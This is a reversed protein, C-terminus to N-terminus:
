SYVVQPLAQASDINFTYTKIESFLLEAVIVASDGPTYTTIRVIVATLDNIKFSNIRNVVSGSLKKNM